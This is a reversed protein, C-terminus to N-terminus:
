VLQDGTCRSPPQGARLPHGGFLGAVARSAWLTQGFAWGIQEFVRVIVEVGFVKDTPLQENIHLYM